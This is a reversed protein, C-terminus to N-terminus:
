TGDAAKLTAALKDLDKADKEALLGLLFVIKGIRKFRIQYEKIAPLSANGASPAQFDIDKVVNGADRFATVEEAFRDNLKIEAM